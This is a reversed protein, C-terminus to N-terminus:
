NILGPPLTIGFLAALAITLIAASKKIWGIDTSMRAVKIKIAVLCADREDDNM